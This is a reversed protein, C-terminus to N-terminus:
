RMEGLIVRELTFPSASGESQLAGLSPLFRPDWILKTDSAEIKVNGGRGSGPEESIPQGGYAVLAGRLKIKGRRPNDPRAAKLSVNGWSYLLGQFAMDRYRDQREVYTSLIMDKRSYVNLQLSSLSGDGDPDDEALDGFTMQDIERELEEADTIEGLISIARGGVIEVKDGTVITGGRGSISSQIHIPGDASFSTNTLYLRMDDATYPDNVNKPFTRNDYYDLKAPSRPIIAIGDNGRSSSLIRLDTDTLSWRFGDSIVRQSTRANIHAVRSPAARFGDPNLEM